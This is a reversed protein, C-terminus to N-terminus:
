LGEDLIVIRTANWGVVCPILSESTMETRGGKGGKLEADLKTGAIREVGLEASQTSFRQAILDEVGEMECVDVRDGVREM